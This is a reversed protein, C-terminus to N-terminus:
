ANVMKDVMGHTAFSLTYGGPLFEIVPTWGADMDELSLMFGKPFVFEVSGFGYKVQRRVFEGTNINYWGCYAKILVNADYDVRFSYLYFNTRWGIYVSMDVNVAITGYTGEEDITAFDYATADVGSLGAFSRYQHSRTIPVVMLEVNQSWDKRGTGWSKVM